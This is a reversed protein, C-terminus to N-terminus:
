GRVEFCDRRKGPPWWHDFIADSDDDSRDLDEDDSRDLDDDDSRDLDDDDSRDLDDDDQQVPTQGTRAVNAPVKATAGARQKAPTTASAKSTAKDRFLEIQERTAKTSIIGAKLGAKLQDNSLGTVLYISSFSPPLRKIITPLRRDNGIRVLRSFDSAGFPLKQLLAKKGEPSLRRDAEACYKGRRCIEEVSRFWSTKIKVAFEEVLEAEETTAHNPVSKGLNQKNASIVPM